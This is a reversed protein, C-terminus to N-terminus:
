QFIIPVIPRVGGSYVPAKFAFYQMVVASENATTSSGVSFGDADITIRGTGCTASDTRCTTDTTQTPTKLGTAATASNGKIFVVQPQFGFSSLSQSTGNGTFNGVKTYGTVAKLCLYYFTSNLENIRTHSGIEFGDANWAQVANADNASADFNGTSDATFNTTVWSGADPTTDADEVVMCFQPSFAPSIVIDTPDTANGTYSGVSLDNNADTAFAVYHCTAGSANARSDSGIVFGVSSFSQILNAILATQGVGMQTASDGAMSSTKFVAHNASDCKVIVADPQFDAVTPSSTDSIDVTRDDTVNGTFSGTALKFALAPDAYLFLALIFTSLTKKM